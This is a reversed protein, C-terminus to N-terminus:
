PCAEHTGTDHGLLVHCYDVGDADTMRCAVEDSQTRWTTLRLQSGELAPRLYELEYSAGHEGDPRAAAQDALDLYAANNLHGMPDVDVARILVEATAAGPPADPLVVREPRIDVGPAFHRTIEEPIRTPRGENTLLVWDTDIDAVPEDATSRFHTRRRATVRRWGVIATSGVIEEGYTVDAHIRLSVRRVLWAKERAEYWDRGFGAAESHRWALDQAFRVLGSPRLLGDAAAEDFRVRYRGEFRM